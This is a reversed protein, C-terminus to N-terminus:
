SCASGPKMMTGTREECHTIIAAIPEFRSALASLKQEGTEALGLQCLLGGCNAAASTSMMLGTEMNTDGM